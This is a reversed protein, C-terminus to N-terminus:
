LSSLKLDMEVVVNMPFDEWKKIFNKVTYKEKKVAFGLLDLWQPTYHNTGDALCISYGDKNMKWRIINGLVKHKEIYSTPKNQFCWVLGLSDQVIWVKM